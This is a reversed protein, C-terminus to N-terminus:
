SIPEPTMDLCEGCCLSPGIPTRKVLDRPRTIPLESLSSKSGLWVRRKAHRSMPLQLRLCMGTTM